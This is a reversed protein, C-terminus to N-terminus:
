VSVSEQNVFGVGVVGGWFFFYYYFFTPTVDRCEGIGTIMQVNNIQGGKHVHMQQACLTEYVDIRTPFSKCFIQTM